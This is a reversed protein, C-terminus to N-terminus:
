PEETDSDDAVERWSSGGPRWVNAPTLSQWTRGEHTVVWGAPYADHAGAPQRWEDGPVTGEASLYARAMAQIQEPLTALNARREQEALVAQRLDDLETDTLDALSEETRM